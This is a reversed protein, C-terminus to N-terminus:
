QHIEVNGCVWDHKDRLMNFTEAALHILGLLNDALMHDNEGSSSCSIALNSLVEMHAEYDTSGKFLKQIPVNHATTFAESTAGGCFMGDWDVHEHFAKEAASVHGRFDEYTAKSTM